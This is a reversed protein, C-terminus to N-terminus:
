RRVFGLDAACSDLRGGKLSAKLRYQPVRVTEGGPLFGIWRKGYQDHIQIKLEVDTRRGHLDWGVIRQGNRLGAVYAPSDHRLGTVERRRKSRSLDFGPEFKVHDIFTLEACHGLANPVLPITEGSEVFREIDRAIGRPLYRRVLRDLSAKSVVTGKTQAERLLDRMVDDFSHRGNTARKIRANWRHALLDGRRYPLRSVDEDSWFRDQVVRNSLNRAPSSYYDRIARNLHRLYQGFGMLGRRLLLLRAYYDTVGESFWYVLQEPQQRRIRRGNWTHFLEHALIWRMRGDIGRDTSVFLAFGNRVGSGGYSCCRATGKLLTVLFHPFRYDGFFDREATVVRSVTDVLEADRFAWQDRLAVWVPGGKVDRRYLRFDGAVYIAHRLAGRTALFRQRRQNVAFSNAVTWDRPLVWELEITRRVKGDDAPVVFVGHGFFHLYSGRILPWFYAYPDIMRLSQRTAVRYRLKLRENPRHQILRSAPSDATITAGENLVRPGRIMQYYQTASAWRDPLLVRTTGTSSGRFELDVDLEPGHSTPRLAIRYSLAAQLHSPEYVSVRRTCGSGLALIALCFAAPTFAWRTIRVLRM